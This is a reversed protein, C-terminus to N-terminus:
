ALARARLRGRRNVIAQFGGSTSDISRKSGCKNCLIQDLRLATDRVLQTHFGHCSTCYVQSMVYEKLLKQLKDQTLRTIDIHLRFEGDFKSTTTLENCIFSRVEDHTRHLKVCIDKFNIWITRRGQPQVSVSPLDLGQDKSGLQDLRAYVRDLMTKYQSPVDVPVGDLFMEKDGRRRQQEKKLMTERKTFPTEIILRYFDDLAITDLALEDLRQIAVDDTSSDRSVIAQPIHLRQERESRHDPIVLTVRTTGVDDESASVDFSRAAGGGGFFPVNKESPFERPVQGAWLSFVNVAPAPPAPKYFCPSVFVAAQQPASAAGGAASAAAAAAPDVHGGKKPKPAM